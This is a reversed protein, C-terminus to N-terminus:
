IRHHQHDRFEPSDPGFVDRITERIRREVNDVETDQYSVKQPDLQQVDVIRRRLKEIGIDIEQVTFEKVVVPPPEIAKKRQVM